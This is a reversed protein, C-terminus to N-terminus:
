IKKEHSLEGTYAAGCLYDVFQKATRGSRGNQSLEWQLAKKKLDEYPIEINNKKAIGQVIELYEQQDPSLYTITIGFRDSLSLKENVMDTTHVEPSEAERDSWNEKVLHRRNSTAYILVNEPKTEIGGELISKLTKYEIEFDEFSLDDMFIIFYRGRGRLSEFIHTLDMLHEKSIELLRLGRRHYKNILAKVSSSKGTGSPGVLLCNNASLGAIFAETNKILINKQDEYGILDEPQIPDYDNIGVLGKTKEWRFAIYDAMEGCGMSHYYEIIKETLLEISGTEPITRKLKKFDILRNATVTPKYKKIVTSNIGLLKRVNDLNLDALKKIIGIDHVAAQYLSTEIKRGYKESALSFINEDKIVLYVIYARLLDGELGIEEGCNILKHCIDYYLEELLIIEPLEKGAEILLKKLDGIIEDKLINRYILLTNLRRSVDRYEKQQDM